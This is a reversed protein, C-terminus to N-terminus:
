YPRTPLLDWSALDDSPPWAQPGPLESPAGLPESPPLQEQLARWYPTYIKYPTGSGTRVQEPSVLVNGPHLQSELAEGVRREAERWWPEYHRTAHVRRAGLDAALRQLEVDCRGRRLILRSGIKDLAEALRQLSHHLWWRQAAGTRWRGPTEDDLIYVPVVAGEGAAAILAPQDHLRLDQRLWLISPTTTSALSM